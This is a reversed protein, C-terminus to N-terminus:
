QNKESSMGNFVLNTKSGKSFFTCLFHPTFARHPYANEQIEPHHSRASSDFFKVHGAQISELQNATLQPVYPTPLEWLHKTQKVHHCIPVVVVGWGEFM